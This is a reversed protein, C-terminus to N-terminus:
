RDTAAATWEGDRVELTIQGDRDTRLVPVGSRELASLTEPAPHGYPNEDGVSILALRPEADALLRPLDADASGHHAVKIVEVPGPDVPALEAEADGTLLLDFDRWRASAVVSDANADDPPPGDLLERPPWLVRLELDGSEITAGEAVRTVPVAASRADALMWEGARAILLRGLSITGLVEAIGGAHDLQDHTLVVAALREVGLDRLRAPLDTGPPGGDVLVPDGPNPDLLIADGQGVDMVVVRLGPAPGPGAPALGLPGAALLAVLASAAAGAVLRARVRSRLGSRRRRRADLVAIALALAGYAGAMSLPSGLEVPLSAWAPAAFWDAIQAIYAAFLGGLGTLPEVPLLPLQGAAAALMGLWMVPAVAPLAALNAPISAISVAGFHHALLPGTALTAALTVAAGDAAASRPSTPAGAAEPAAGLIRRLAPTWVAIGAVAAFSLQWGPDQCARPDLALTIASAALM